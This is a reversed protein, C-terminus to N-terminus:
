QILLGVVKPDGRLVRGLRCPCNQPSQGYLHYNNIM